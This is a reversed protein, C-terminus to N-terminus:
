PLYRPRQFTLALESLQPDCSHFPQVFTAVPLLIATELLTTRTCLLARELERSTPLTIGTIRTRLKRAKTVAWWMADAMADRIESLPHFLSSRGPVAGEGNGYYEVEDDNWLREERGAARGAASTDTPNALVDAVQDEAYEAGELTSHANREEYRNFM